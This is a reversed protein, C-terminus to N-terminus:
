GLRRRRQRDIYRDLADRHFRLNRGHVRIREIEGISALRRLKPESIQLYAAAQKTSLIKERATRYREVEDPEFRVESGIWIPDLDGDRVLRYVSPKSIGLERAVEAATILRAQLAPDAM